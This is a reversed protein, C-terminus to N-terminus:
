KRQPCERMWNKIIIVNQRACQRNNQHKGCHLHDGYMYSDYYLRKNYGFDEINRVDLEHNECVEKLWKVKQLGKVYIVLNQDTLFRTSREKRKYDHTGSNWYFGHHFGQLWLASAKDEKSLESWDFPQTFIYHRDILNKQNGTREDYDFISFYIEKLIYQNNATFGQLDVVAIRGHKTM